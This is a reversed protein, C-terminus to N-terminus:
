RIVHPLFDSDSLWRQVNKAGINEENMYDDSLVGSKNILVNDVPKQQSEDDINTKSKLKKISKSTAFYRVFNIV